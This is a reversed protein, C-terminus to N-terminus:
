VSRRNSEDLCRRLTDSLTQLSFPKALFTFNAHGEACSRVIELSYGSMIVVKLSPTAARLKEALELGTIGKPMRMDTLLLDIKENQQEWVALAEPGNKASLVEYGLTKLARTTVFLLAPEDEVLLVTENQGKLSLLPATTRRITDARESIPLYIYFSTGKGLISEVTLWGKHQHVIGHTSALGLGSGEGVGKTTFFPEFLHKLISAEIGSGTDSIKLCVFKGPRAESHAQATEADFEILSTELTLVGGNPMADRANLCLNMLGQDLMTPEGEIWLEQPSPLWHCVINHNLFRDLMKFTEKIAGNIEMQVPRMPQRRSFLLLKQTLSGARKALGELDHLSSLTPTPLDHQMQLMELNLLTAAIINNFEHAVGGALQSIVEMKQIHQLKEELAKRDTIDVVVARAELEDLSLTASIEVATQSEGKQLTVLCAHKTKTAFLQKLWSDFIPQTDESVSNRFRGGLVRSRELGLLRAGPLNVERISGEISLTFYGTPAFDYLDTYRALATEALTRSERLEDNQMELEIQHVQLEHVLRQTEAEIPPGAVETIQRKLRKEARHRLEASHEPQDQSM